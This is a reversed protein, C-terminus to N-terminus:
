ICAQFTNSPGETSSTLIRELVRTLVSEDLSESMDLGSVDLLSHDTVDESM